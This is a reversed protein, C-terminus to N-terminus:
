KLPAEPGQERETRSESGASPGLRGTQIRAEGHVGHEERQVGQVLENKSQRMRHWVFPLDYTGDFFDGSLKTARRGL